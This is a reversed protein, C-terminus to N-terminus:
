PIEPIGGFLSVLAFFVLGAPVFSLNLAPGRDALWPFLGSCLIFLTVADSVFREAAELRSSEVTYDTMRALTPADIDGQFVEPVERGFRLLHRINIRNLLWRAFSAALFLALFVVLVITTEDM